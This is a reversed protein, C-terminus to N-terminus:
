DRVSEQAELARALDHLDGASILSTDVHSQPASPLEVGSFAATYEKIGLREAQALARRHVQSRLEYGLVDYDYSEDSFEFRGSDFLEILQRRRRVGLPRLAQNPLMLAAQAKLGLRRNLNRAPELQMGATDDIGLAVLQAPLSDTREFYPLMVVRVDPNSRLWQLGSFLGHTWRGARRSLFQEATLGFAIRGSKSVQLYASGLFADIRRLAIVVTVEAVESCRKLFEGLVARGPQHLLTRTVGESSLIVKRNPHQSLYECIDRTLAPAEHPNRAISHALVHHAPPDGTIWRDPYLYGRAALAEANGSLAGQLSTTGTKPMGM